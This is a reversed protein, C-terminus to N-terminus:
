AIPHSKWCAFVHGSVLPSKAHQNSSPHTCTLAHPHLLINITDNLKKDYFLSTTALAVKGRKQAYNM